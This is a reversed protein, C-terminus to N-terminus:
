RPTNKLYLAISLAATNGDGTAKSVQLPAGIMDGAAFVGDVNTSMDPKVEVVGNKLAIEPLMQTMAVAPRLVFIGDAQHSGEATKLTMRGNERSIALPKEKCVTVSASLGDTKHPKELFYHVEGIEALYNAEHIEEASASIVIMQKGKYFMGDCTACYSVGRGLFQKEGEFLATAVVGSAIIVTKAKFMKDPTVLTFPDGPFINVIKEKIVVPNHSLAHAAFSNMMGEGTIQPMGPYNDVIHARRLKPSFDAREFIAVDKNRIKGTLAASLGAPGGGIIAIDYVHDSM